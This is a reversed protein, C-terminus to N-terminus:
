EKEADMEWFEGGVNGDITLFTGDIELNLEDGDIEIRRGDDMIIYDGEVSTTSGFIDVLTWETEGSNESEKRYEMEFSNITYLIQEVGDVRFSEVDWTGELNNNAEENPDVDNSCQIFTFSLILTLMLSYPPRANKLVNRLIKM